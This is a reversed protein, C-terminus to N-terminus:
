ANLALTIRRDRYSSRTGPILFPTHVCLAVPCPNTFVALGVIGGFSSSADVREVIATTLFSLIGNGALNAPSAPMARTTTADVAAVVRVDVVAPVDV